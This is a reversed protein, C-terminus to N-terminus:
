KEKPSFYKVFASRIENKIIDITYIIDSNLPNKDNKCIEKCNRYISNIDLSKIFNHEQRYNIIGRSNNLITFCAAIYATKWSFKEYLTMQEKDVYGYLIEINKLNRSSASIFWKIKNHFGSPNRHHANIKINVSM